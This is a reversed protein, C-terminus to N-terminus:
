QPTWGYADKWAAAINQNAKAVANLDANPPIALIAGDPGAYIGLCKGLKTISGNAFIRSDGVAIADTWYADFDARLQAPIEHGAFKGLNIAAQVALLAADDTTPEVAGTVPITFVAQINHTAFVENVKTNLWALFSTIGGKAQVDRTFDGDNIYLAPCNYIDWGQSGLIFVGAAYELGIMTNMKFGGVAYTKGGDTVTPANAQIPYGM